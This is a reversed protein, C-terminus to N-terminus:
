VASVSVHTLVRDAPREGVGPDLGDVPAGCLYHLFDDAFVKAQLARPRCRAGRSTREVDHPFVAMTLKVSVQASMRSRVGRPRRGWERVHQMEEPTLRHRAGRIASAAVPLRSSNAGGCDTALFLDSDRILNHRLAGQHAAEISDAVTRRDHPRRNPLSRAPESM